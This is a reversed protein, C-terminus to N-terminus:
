GGATKDEVVAGNCHHDKKIYKLIKRLDLDKALGQVTTICKRGNRQM